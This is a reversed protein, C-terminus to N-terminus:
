ILDELTSPQTTPRLTRKPNTLRIRECDDSWIRERIVHIVYGIDELAADIVKDGADSLFVVHEVSRRLHSLAEDRPMDFIRNYQEGPRDNM